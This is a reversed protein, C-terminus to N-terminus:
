YLRAVNFIVVKFLFKNFRKKIKNILTINNYIIKNIFNKLYFINIM